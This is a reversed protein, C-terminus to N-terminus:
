SLGHVVRFLILCICLVNLFLLLIVKKTQMLVNNDPIQVALTTENTWCMLIHVPLKLLLFVDLMFFCIDRCTFVVLDDSIILYAMSISATLIIYELYM